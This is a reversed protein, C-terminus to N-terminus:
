VPAADKATRGDTGLPNLSKDAWRTLKEVIQVLVIYLVAAALLPSVNDYYITGINQAEGLLDRVTVISAIASAKITFITENGIQSLCNRIAIPLTIRSIVKRGSLGIALGAEVQGKRVTLIGSRIVEALYAANNLSFALVCTSFASSLVFDWLPGKRLFAIQPVGYYLCYLLILLPVGRFVFVYTTALSSAITGGYVRMLAIATGCILGIAVSLVTLLITVQLGKFVAFWLTESLLLSTM